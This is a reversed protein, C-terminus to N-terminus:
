FIRPVSSSILPWAQYDAFYPCWISRSVSNWALSCSSGAKMFPKSGSFNKIILLPIWTLASITTRTRIIWTWIIPLLKITKLGLAIGQRVMDEMPAESDGSFACHLHCDTVIM